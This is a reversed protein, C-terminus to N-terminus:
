ISTSHDAECDPQKIGRSLPGPVWQIPHHHPGLALSSTIAFLFIRLGEPFRVWTTWDTALLNVSKDLDVTNRITAM